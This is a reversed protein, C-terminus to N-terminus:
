SSRRMGKPEIPLLLRRLVMRAHHLRSAVTGRPIRLIAAVEDVGYGQLYHLAIVARHNPNLRALADEVVIRDTTGLGRSQAAESGSFPVWRLARRRRAATIAENCTVRTLWAQLVGQEEPLGEQHRFAKEFVTQTVDSAAEADRLIVFAVRRLRERHAHYLAEWAV